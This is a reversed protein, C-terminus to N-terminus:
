AQDTTAPEVAQSSLAAAADGSRAAARAASARVDSAPAASGGGKGAEGGEGRGGDAAEKLDSSPKPEGWAAGRAADAPPLPRAVGM